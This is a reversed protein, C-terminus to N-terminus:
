ITTKLRAPRANKRLRRAAPGQRWGGGAGNVRSGADQHPIRRHPNGPAFAPAPRM